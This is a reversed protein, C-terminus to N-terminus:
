ASMGFSLTKHHQPSAWPILSVCSLRLLVSSLMLILSFTYSTIFPIEGPHAQRPISVTEVVANQV